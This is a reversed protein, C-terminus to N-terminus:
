LKLWLLLAKLRKNPGLTAEVRELTGMMADFLQLATERAHALSGVKRMEAVIYSKMDLSLEHGNERHFLLGRLM